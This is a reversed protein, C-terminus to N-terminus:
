DAEALARRVLPRIRKWSADPSKRITLWDHLLMVGVVGEIALLSAALPEDDGPDGAGSGFSRRDDSIRRDLVCKVADPNPTPEFATVRLPM